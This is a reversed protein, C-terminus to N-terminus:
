NSEENCTVGMFFDEFSTEKVFISAVSVGSQVLLRNIEATKDLYDHVVIKRSDLVKHNVYGQKRLISSAMATDSCIIEIKSQCQEHLEQSSLEMILKGGSMIGFDTALKSLEELIHSSIIITIGYKENLFM